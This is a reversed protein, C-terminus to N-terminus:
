RNVAAQECPLPDAVDNGHLTRLVANGLHRDNRLLRVRDHRDLDMGFIPRDDLRSALVVLHKVQAGVALGPGILAELSCPLALHVPVDELSEPSSRSTKWPMRLFATL